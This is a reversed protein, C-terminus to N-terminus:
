GARRARTRGEMVEQLLDVTAPHLDINLRRAQATLRLALRQVEATNGAQSEVRVRACLLLEDEPAAALARDTAWRARDLDGDALALQCLRVGIDRITATMTHRMEDAWHWQTPAADALPAGRVLELASALSEPATRGVGAIVLLQLQHWDSTVAEHLAIRGSYAEPLFPRGSDDCGLWSRLRSMNSRRTTEAVLLANAMQLSTSEPHELLWAAYEMCQRQARKPPTGRAGALDIPGLLLLTPPSDVATEKNPVSRLPLGEREAAGWWPAPNTQTTASARLSAVIGDRLDTPISQSIVQRGDPLTSLADGPAVQWVAGVENTTIVTLGEDVLALIRTAEDTTVPADLILIQPGWAEVQDRDRRLDRDHATLTAPREEFRTECILLAAEVDLCHILEPADLLEVFEADGGVMTVHVGDAWEGSTLEIVLANLLGEITPRHGQLSLMPTQELDLLEMAGDAGRGATILAGWPNAGGLEPDDAWEAARSLPIRVGAGAPEFGPIPPASESLTVTLHDPTMTAGTLQPLEAPLAAALTRLAPGLAGAAPGEGLAASAALPDVADNCPRAPEAFVRGLPRQARQAARRRAVIGTVVAACLTGVSTGLASVGIAELAVQAAEAAPPDPPAEGASVSIPMAMPAADDGDLDVEGDGVSAVEALPVSRVVTVTPASPAPTLAPIRLQWGAEIQHPDTILSANAEHILRWQLGDGYYREALSWLDDGFRVTHVQDGPQSQPPAAQNVAAVQPSSVTPAAVTSGTAAPVAHAAPSSGVAIMAVVAMVLGSAFSQPGGLGPVRLRVRTVATVVELLVSVTFVAWALWALVTLLGVFLTGDDPRSLIAWLGGSLDPLSGATMLLWPGGAIVAILFILAALGRLVRM